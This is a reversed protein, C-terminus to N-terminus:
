PSSRYFDILSIRDFERFLYETMMKQNMIRLLRIACNELQIRYNGSERIQVLIQIGRRAIIGGLCYCCLSWIQRWTVYRVIYYIYITGSAPNSGAVKRNHTSRELWASSSRCRFSQCREALLLKKLVYYLRNLCKRLM